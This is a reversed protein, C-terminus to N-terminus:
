AWAYRRRRRNLRWVFALVEAVAAFADAPITEGVDATAYLHRALPPNEVIEVDHEKALERIRLALLDSGKALVRPAGEEPRYALAVAFHTPNTIVVDAHKVQGLMRARAMQRARQRQKGKVEAPMDQQKAEQKVEEKSMRMGKEHSHRQWFLDAGAIVVLLALVRWALSVVLGAVTRMAQDPPVEGLQVLDDVRPVLTLAAIGGVAALKALSKALEVLSHPSVMRKAGPVPNLRGFKPKLMSLVLKPRVQVVSATVGALATALLAPLCLIAVTGITASLVSGVDGPTAAPDAIRAFMERTTEELRDLLKGGTLALVAFGATLVFLSSVEPSRAVQGQKRAEERRKPTARETREGSM